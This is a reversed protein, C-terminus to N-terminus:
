EYITEYKEILSQYANEQKLLYINYMWLNEKKLHKNNNEMDELYEKSGKEGYRTGVCRFWLAKFITADDGCDDMIDINRIDAGNVLGFLDEAIQKAYERLGDEPEEYGNFIDDFLFEELYELDTLAEKEERLIYWSGKGLDYFTKDRNNTIYYETGM